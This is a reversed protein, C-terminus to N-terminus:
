NTFAKVGGSKPLCKVTVPYWIWASKSNSTAGNTGTKNTAYLKFYASVKTTTGTVLANRHSALKANCAKVPDNGHFTIQHMPITKSVSKSFTRSNNNYSQTWITPAAEILPFEGSGVRARRVKKGWDAKAYLKLGFKHSQSKISTFSNAGATVEIPVIDVGDKNISVTQIPNAAAIGTLAAMSIAFPLLTKTFTM